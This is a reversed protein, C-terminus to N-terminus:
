GGLSLAQPEAFEYPKDQSSADYAAHALQDLPRVMGVIEELVCADMAAPAGPVDLLPDLPEPGYPALVRQGFVILNWTGPLAASPVRLMPPAEQELFTDGLEQCEGYGGPPCVLAYPDMGIEAADDFGVTEVPGDPLRLAWVPRRIEAPDLGDPLRRVAEALPGLPHLCFCQVPGEDKRNFRGDMVNPEIWLPTHYAAARYVILEARTEVWCRTRRANWGRRPTLARSSKRPPGGKWSV